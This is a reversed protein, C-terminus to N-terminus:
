LYKVYIGGVSVSPTQHSRFYRFPLIGGLLADCRVQSWMSGMKLCQVPSPIGNIVSLLSFNLVESVQM